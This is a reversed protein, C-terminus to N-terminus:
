QIDAASFGPPFDTPIWARGVFARMHGGSEIVVQPRTVVLQSHGAKPTQAAATTLTTFHEGLLTRLDPLFPGKWSVAFVQGDGKIYERVTTGNALVSDSVKYAGSAAALVRAKLGTKAVGFDSPAGGLAAHAAGQALLGALFVFIFASRM